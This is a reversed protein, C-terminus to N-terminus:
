RCMMMNNERETEVSDDGTTIMEADFAFIDGDMINYLMMNKPLLVIIIKTPTDFQKDQDYM